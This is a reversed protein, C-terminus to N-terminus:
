WVLWYCLFMFRAFRCQSLRTSSILIRLLQVATCHDSFKPGSGGNQCFCLSCLLIVPTVPRVFCRLTNEFTFELKSHLFFIVSRVFSWSPVSSHTCSVASGGTCEKQSAPAENFCSLLQHLMIRRATFVAPISTMFRMSFGCLARIVAVPSQLPCLVSIVQTKAGAAERPFRIGAVAPQRGDM